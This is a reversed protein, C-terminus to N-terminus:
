SQAGAKALAAHAKVRAESETLTSPTKTFTRLMTQLADVLEPILNERDAQRAAAQTTNM